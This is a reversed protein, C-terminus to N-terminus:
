SAVVAGLTHGISKGIRDVMVTLRSGCSRGGECAYTAHAHTTHVTLEIIVQGGLFRCGDVGSGHAGKVLKCM